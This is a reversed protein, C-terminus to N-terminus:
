AALGVVFGDHGHGYRPTSGEGAGGQPKGCTQPPRLNPRPNSGLALQRWRTHPGRTPRRQTKDAQCLSSPSSHPQLRDPPTCPLLAVPGARWHKHTRTFPTCGVARRKEQDTSQLGRRKQGEGKQWCDGKRTDETWVVTRSCWPPPPTPNIPSALPHRRAKPAGARAEVLIEHKYTPGSFRYYLARGHCTRPGGDSRHM